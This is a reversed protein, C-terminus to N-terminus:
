HNFEQNPISLLPTKRKLTITVKPVQELLLYKLETKRSTALDERPTALEESTILLMNLGLVMSDRSGILDLIDALFFFLSPSIILHSLM